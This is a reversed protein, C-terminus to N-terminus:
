RVSALRSRDPRPNQYLAHHDGQANIGKPRTSAKLLDPGPEATGMMIQAETPKKSPDPWTLTVQYDGAIIGVEGNSMLKFTGDSGVVGSATPLKNDSPHFMVVAGAAPKGKVTVSGTAPVLKPGGPGCGILTLTAVSIGIWLAPKMM